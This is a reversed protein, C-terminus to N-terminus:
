AAIEAAWRGYRQREREEQERAIELRRREVRRHFLWVRPAKGLIQEALAERSLDRDVRSLDIELVSEGRAKLLALKRADVAHSVKVEIILRHRSVGDEGERVLTAVLDPRLGDERPEVKVEGFSVWEGPQVIERGAPGDLEAWPLRLAPGAAIIEKAVRHLATEGAHQCEGHGRVSAHAFHARRVRGRRPFLPAACDPCTLHGTGRPADLVHILDGSPAMGFITRPSTGPVPFVCRLPADNPERATANTREFGIEFSM